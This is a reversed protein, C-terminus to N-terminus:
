GQLERLEGDGATTPLETAASYSNPVTSGEPVVPHRSAQSYGQQSVEQVHGRVPNLFQHSPRLGDPSLEATASAAPVGSLETYLSVAKAKADGTSSKEQGQLEQLGSGSKPGEDVAAPQGSNAPSKRKTRSIYFIAVITIAIIALGGIVGGVIAGTPTSNGSGVSPSSTSTGLLSSSPITSLAETSTTTNTTSILLEGNSHTNQCQYWAYGSVPADEYFYTGCISAPSACLGTGAQWLSTNSEDKEWFSKMISMPQLLVNPGTAKWKKQMLFDVSQCINRALTATWDKRYGLPQLQDQTFHKLCSTLKSKLKGPCTCDVDELKLTRRQTVLCELTQYTQCLQQSLIVRCTWYRLLQYALMHSPFDYTVPFLKILPPKIKETFPYTDFTSTAPWYLPGTYEEGLEKMWNTLSQDFRWCTRVCCISATLREQLGASKSVVIGDQKYIAPLKLMIDTLKDQFDKPRRHAWPVELWEKSALFSAKKQLLCIYTSHLRLNRFVVYGLGNGSVIPGRRRLLEMTGNYHNVFDPMRGPSSRLLAHYTLAICTTLTQEQVRLVPHNIVAQLNRLSKGYLVMSEITLNSKNDRQGLRATCTALLISELSPSLDATELVKFLWHQDPYKGLLLEEPFQDEVFETLLRQRFAHRPSVLKPM